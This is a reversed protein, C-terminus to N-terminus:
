SVVSIFLSAPISSCQQITRAGTITTTGYFPCSLCYSRGAEPQYYDRPCPYCPVLGTRSFHGASCPVLSPCLSHFLSRSSLLSLLLLHPSSLSHHSLILSCSHAKQQVTRNSCILFLASSSLSQAASVLRVEVSARSWPEETSPPPKQLAPCVHVCALVLSTSVWLAHNVRRWGVSHHAALSVSRQLCMRVFWFWAGIIVMLVNCLVYNCVYNALCQLVCM